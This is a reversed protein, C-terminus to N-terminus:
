SEGMGASVHRTDRISIMSLIQNISELESHNIANFFTVIGFM